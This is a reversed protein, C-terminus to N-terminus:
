EGASSRKNTRTSKLCTSTAHAILQGSEDVVDCQTLAMTPGQSVVQGRARLRANRVLKVFNIKLEVTTFTEGPGLTSAYATAMAADAITCLMGGQLIGFTNTHQRTAKFEVVAQGNEASTVEFGILSAVPPMTARRAAPPAPNMADNKM